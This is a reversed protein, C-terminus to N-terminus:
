LLSACDICHEAMISDVAVDQRQNTTKELDRGRFEVFAGVISGWLIGLGGSLCIKDAKEDGMLDLPREIIAHSLVM